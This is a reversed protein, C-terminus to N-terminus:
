NYNKLLRNIILELTEEKAKEDDVTRPSWTSYRNHGPNKPDDIYLQGVVEIVGGLCNESKMMVELIVDLSAMQDKNESDYPLHTCIEGAANFAQTAAGYHFLRPQAKELFANMLEQRTQEGSFKQPIHGKRLWYGAIQVLEFEKEQILELEDQFPLKAMENTRCLLEYACNFHESDFTINVGSQAKLWLLDLWSGTQLALYTPLKHGGDRFNAIDVTEINLIGGMLYNLFDLPKIHRQVHEFMEKASIPSNYRELGADEAPEIATAPACHITVAALGITQHLQKAVKAMEVLKGSVPDMPNGLNKTSGNSWHWTLFGGYPKLKAALEEVWGGSLDDGKLEFMPVFGLKRLQPYKDFLGLLFALRRGKGYDGKGMPGGIGKVM